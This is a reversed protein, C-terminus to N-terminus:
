KKPAIQHQATKCIYIFLFLYISWIFLSSSSSFLLLNFLIVQILLDFDRNKWNMLILYANLFIFGLCALVGSNILIEFVYSHPNVIHSLNPDNISQFYQLSYDIGYGLGYSSFMSSLSYKYLYLRISTSQRDSFLLDTKLEKFSDLLQIYWNPDLYSLGIILVLFGISSSYLLRLPYRYVFYFFSVLLSIRSQSYYVIGFHICFVVLLWVISLSKKKDFTSLLYMLMLTFVSAFDNSNFYVVTPSHRLWYPADFLDSTSLHNGTYIEYIAYLGYLIYFLLTVGNMVKFFSERNSLYVIYFFIILGLLFTFNLISNLEYSYGFLNYRFFTVLYTHFFMYLFFILSIFIVPQLTIKSKLLIVKQFLLVSFYLITIPLILRLPYLNPGVGFTNM